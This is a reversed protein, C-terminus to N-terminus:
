QKQIEALTAMLERIVPATDARYYVDQSLYQSTARRLMKRGAESSLREGLQKKEEPTMTQRYNAVWQAMLAVNTQREAERMHVTIIQLGEIHGVNFFDLFAKQRNSAETLPGYRLELFRESPNPAYRAQLGARIDLAVEVPTYRHFYHTWVVVSGVVLCLLVVGAWTWRKRRKTM